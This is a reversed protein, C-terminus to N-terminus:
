LNPAINHGIVEDSYFRSSKTLAYESNKLWGLVM